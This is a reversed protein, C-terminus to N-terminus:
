NKEIGTIWQDHIGFKKNPEGSTTIVLTGGQMEQQTIWNRDLAKGNLKVSQIYRNNNGYNKVEISFQLQRFIIKEFIPVSLYYVPWGVCAPTLGCAAFIYWASMGGADDDMSKLFADPRNNFVRDITPDIGRYNLDSYYQVVTDKAYKRIMAQSKWPETSANYMSPVLIDTENAANYLDKEFFQDLQRIYADNGGCLETLGKVDFPVLWRYQWITGQYMDRAELRDVDPRTLDQFDKKWYNKYGIAKKKYQASSGPQHLISFIQSLAWTDYSSELAKDPHSFDLSDNETKLSDIIPSFDVPYGKRYGDLLTVIAHETRVTNSPEHLTAWDKKGYKYLGGISTIINKYFSPYALSLLPLQTRYNDWIAWGNYVTDKTKQLSGDIAIYSGDAETINYPSQLTRYLLSYFLKTEEKDGTVRIENLLSNWDKKSKEKVAEFSEHNISAKAYDISVSSFAIRLTVDSENTEAIVIHNTSDKLKVPRDFSLYFYVKYAGERCTTGSVIWGGINNPNATHQENIFGNTFAHSLDIVLGNKAKPFHYQEIGSKQYVAISATVGNKFSVHYYGPAAKEKAKTLECIQPDGTFPKILINGGSGRCGVGEFRNHTFGLFVKAKYEYGSHLNPYTQPGISLMSFPYSAAPSLQGHDGSTGLFVNVSQAKSNLSFVLGALLLVSIMLRQEEPRKLYGTEVSTM